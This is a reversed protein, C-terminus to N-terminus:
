WWWVELYADLAARYDKRNTAMTALNKQISYLLQLGPHIAEKGREELCEWAQFFMFDFTFLDYEIYTQQTM